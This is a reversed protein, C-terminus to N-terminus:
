SQGWRAFPTFRSLWAPGAAFLAKAMSPARCSLLVSADVDRPVRSLDSVASPRSLYQRRWAHRQDQDVGVSWAWTPYVLRQCLDARM